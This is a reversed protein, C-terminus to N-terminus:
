ELGEMGGGRGATQKEAFVVTRVMHLIHAVFFVAKIRCCCDCIGCRLNKSSAWLSPLGYVM